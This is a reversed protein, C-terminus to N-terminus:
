ATGSSELASATSVSPSVSSPAGPSAAGSAEGSAQAERAAEAKARAEEYDIGMSECAVVTIATLYELSRRGDIMALAQEASVGFAIAFVDRVNHMYKRSRSITTMMADLSGYVEELQLIAANHFRLQTKTGDALTIERGAALLARNDTSESM